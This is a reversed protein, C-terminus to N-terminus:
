MEDMWFFLGENIYFKKQFKEEKFQGEEKKIEELNVFEEFFVVMFNVFQCFFILLWIEFDVLLLIISVMDLSFGFDFDERYGLFFDNVQDLFFIIIISEFGQDFGLNYNKVDNELIM